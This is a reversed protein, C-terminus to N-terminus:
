KCDNQAEDSEKFFSNYVQKLSCLLGLLAALSVILNLFTFEFIQSRDDLVRFTIILTGNACFLTALVIAIWKHVPKDIVKNIIHLAFCYCLMGPLSGLFAIFVILPLLEPIGIFGFFVCEILIAVLVVRQAIKSSQNLEDKIM